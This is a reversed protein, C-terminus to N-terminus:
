ILFERKVYREPHEENKEAAIPNILEQQAVTPRGFNNFLSTTLLQNPRRPQNNGRHIFCCCASLCFTGMIVGIIIGETQSITHSSNGNTCADECPLKRRLSEAEVLDFINALLALILTASIHSKRQFFQEKKM